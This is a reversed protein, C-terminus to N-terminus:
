SLRRDKEVALCCLCSLLRIKLEFDTKLEAGEINICDIFAESEVLKNMNEYWWIDVLSM